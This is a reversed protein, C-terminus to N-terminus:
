WDYTPPCWHEFGNSSQWYGTATEGCVWVPEEPVWPEESSGGGTSGGGTSGGGGGGGTSGGGGGGGGGSSGGGGWSGGGSWDDGGWDGSWDGGGSWDDGGSWENGGTWEGGGSTDETWVGAAAAAEADVAKKHAAAADRVANFYVNLAGRLESTLAKPDAAIKAAADAAKKVAATDAKPYEKSVKAVQDPFSAAAATMSPNATSALQALEAFPKEAAARDKAADKADRELGEVEARRQALKEGTMEGSVKAAGPAPQQSAATGKAELVEVAGSAKWEYAVTTLESSKDDPSVAALAEAFVAGDSATDVKKAEATIKKGAAALDAALKKSIAPEGQKGWTTLAGGLDQVEPLAAGALETNALVLAHDDDIQAALTVSRKGLDAYETAHANNVAIPTVIGAAVLAAAVAAATIILNRKRKPKVTPEDPNVEPPIPQTENM